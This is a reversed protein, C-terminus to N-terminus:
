ESSAQAEWFNYIVVKTVSILTGSTAVPVHLFWLLSTNEEFM